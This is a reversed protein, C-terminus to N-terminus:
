KRIKYQKGYQTTGKCLNPSKNILSKFHNYTNDDIVESTIYNYNEKNTDNKILLNTNTITQNKNCKTKKLNTRSVIKNRSKM